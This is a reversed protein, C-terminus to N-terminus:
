DHHLHARLQREHQAMIHHQSKKTPSLGGHNQRAARCSRLTSPMTSPRKAHSSPRCGQLEVPTQQKRCPCVIGAHPPLGLRPPRECAAQCGSTRGASREHRCALDLFSIHRMFRPMTFSRSGCAGSLMWIPPHAGAGAGCLVCPVTTHCACPSAAAQGLRQRGGWRGADSGAIQAAQM